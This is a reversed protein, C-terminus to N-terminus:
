LDGKEGDASPYVCVDNFGRGDYTIIHYMPLQSDTAKQAFDDFIQFCLMWCNLLDVKERITGAALKLLFVHECIEREHLLDVINGDCPVEKGRRM